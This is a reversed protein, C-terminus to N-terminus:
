AKRGNTQALAELRREERVRAWRAAVANRGIEQRRAPSLARARAPGGLVGGRKGLVKAGLQIVDNQYVRPPNTKNTFRWLKDLASIKRMWERDLERRLNNYERETM